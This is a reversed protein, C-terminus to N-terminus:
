NRSTQTLIFGGANQRRNKNKEMSRWPYTPNIKTDGQRAM